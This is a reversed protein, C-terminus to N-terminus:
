ALSQLRASVKSLRAQIFGPVLECLLSDITPFTSGNCTFGEESITISLTHNLARITAKGQGEVVETTLVALEGDRELSKLEELEERVFRHM